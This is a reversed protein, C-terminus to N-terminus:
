SGRVVFTIISLPMVNYCVTNRTIACSRKIQTLSQELNEIDDLIYRYIDKSLYTLDEYSIEYSILPNLLIRSPLTYFTKAATLYSIM